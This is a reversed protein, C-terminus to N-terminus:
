KEILDLLIESLRKNPIGNEKLFQEIAENKPTKGENAVPHIYGALELGNSVSLNPNFTREKVKDGTNGDISTVTGNDNITEVIGIHGSFSKGVKVYNGSKKRRFIVLSGPKPTFSVKGGKKQYNLLTQYSNPSFFDVDQGAEFWVLKAFHACWQQGIRWGVLSMRKEFEESKFGKNGKIEEEGLYSQAIEIIKSSELTKNAM